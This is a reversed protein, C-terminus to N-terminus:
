QFRILEESTYKRPHMPKEQPANMERGKNYVSSDFLAKLDKGSKRELFERFEETTITQHKKEEWLLKLMEKMGGVLVSLHGIVKMGGSYALNTTYRRYPSFAALSQKGPSSSYSPYGNDRWSAIAEDIWASNGSSPMIGRAFWSHTLEHGLAGTTTMTAGCYEMGGGSSTIYITLSEHGYPGYTNELESLVRKATSEATNVSSGYVVVPISKEKLSVEFRKESYYGQNAIHVFFSSTTFYNPFQISWSNLANETTKGNTYIQHKTNTGKIRVDMTVAYHDYEFSTPGYKEFFNRDSLDGMFFGLRVTSNSFTASTLSWEMSMKHLGPELEKGLVRFKTVGSVSIEKADSSVGDVTVNRPTPVLDFSPLGKEKTEFEIIATGKVTKAAVDIEYQISTNLFDSPVITMGGSNFSPFAHDLDQAFSFVTILLLFLATRM